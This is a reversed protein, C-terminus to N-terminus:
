SKILAIQKRIQGALVQADYLAFRKTQALELLDQLTKFQLQLNDLNTM